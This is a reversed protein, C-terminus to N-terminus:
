NDNKKTKLELYLDFLESTKKYDFCRQNHNWKRYEIGYSGWTNDRIWEAFEISIDETIQASKQATSIIFQESPYLQQEKSKEIASLHQQILIKNM